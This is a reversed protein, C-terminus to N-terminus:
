DFGSTMYLEVSLNKDILYDLCKKGLGFISLDSVRDARCFYALDPHKQVSKGLLLCFIYGLAIVILLNHLMTPDSLKTKHVWFGKSKFDKFLTEIAFRRRYYACAMEAVEMNTLLPIPVPYKKEHWLIANYKGAVAGEVWVYSESIDQELQAMTTDEGSDQIKRDLSTRLVFEWGKSAIFDIWDKGDFEGDGLVVVRCPPLLASVQQLLDIHLSQPFHGKKGTRTLWCLPIARKQFVISVMLCMCDTGVESGDIVLIIEGTQALRALLGEVYPFFHSHFDTYKSKLWRKVQKVGSESQKDHHKGVTEGISQLSAKKKSLLAYLMSILVKLKALSSKSYSIKPNILIKTIDKYLTKSGTM